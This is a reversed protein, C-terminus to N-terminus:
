DSTCCFTFVIDFYVIIAEAKENKLHGPWQSLQDRTRLIDLDSRV